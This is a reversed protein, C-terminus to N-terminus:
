SGGFVDVGDPAEFTFKSEDIDKNVKVNSFVIDTTQNFQDKLKMLKLGSEDVGLVIGKFDSQDSKTKLEVHYVDNIKDLPIIDFADHVSASDQILAMPTNKLSISQKQVTVQQLEVDFIWINEGDSIIQQEFPESYDWRFKGPKDLYFVGKSTQLVEGNESRQTQSFDASMTRTSSLYNDLLQKGDSAYANNLIFLTLVLIVGIKLIFRDSYQATNFLTM